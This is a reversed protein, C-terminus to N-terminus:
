AFIARSIMCVYNKSNSHEKARRKEVDIVKVDAIVGRENTPSHRMAGFTPKYNTGIESVFAQKFNNIDWPDGM